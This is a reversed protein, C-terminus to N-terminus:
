IYTVNEEAHGFTEAKIDQLQLHMQDFLVQYFLGRTDHDDELEHQVSAM